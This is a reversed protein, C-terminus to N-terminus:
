RKAAKQRRLTHGINAMEHEALQWHKNCPKCFVTLKREAILRSIEPESRAQIEAFGSCTPCKITM